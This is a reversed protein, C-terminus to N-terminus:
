EARDREVDDADANHPACNIEAEYFKNGKRHGADPLVSNVNLQCIQKQKPCRVENESINCMM